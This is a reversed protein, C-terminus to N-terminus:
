VYSQLMGHEPGPTSARVFAEMLEKDSYHPPPAAHEAPACGFSVVAFAAALFPALRPRNMHLETARPLSTPYRPRTGSEGAVREASRRCGKRGNRPAPCHFLTGAGSM